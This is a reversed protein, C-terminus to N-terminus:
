LNAKENIIITERRGCPFPLELLCKINMPAHSEM